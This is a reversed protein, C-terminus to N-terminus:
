LTVLRRLPDRRPDIFMAALQTNCPSSCSVHTEVSRVCIADLCFKMLLSLLRSEGCHFSCSPYLITHNSEKKVEIILRGVEVECSWDRLHESSSLTWKSSSVVFTLKRRYLLKIPMPFTQRLSWSILPQKIPPGIVVFCQILLYFNTMDLNWM